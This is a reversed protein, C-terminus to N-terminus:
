ERQRRLWIGYTESYLSVQCTLDLSELYTICYYILGTKLPPPNHPQVGGGGLFTQVFIEADVKKVPSNLM